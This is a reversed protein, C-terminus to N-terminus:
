FVEQRKVESSHGAVVFVTHYNWADQVRIEWEKSDFRGRLESSVLVVLRVDRDSQRHMIRHVGIMREEFERDDHVHSLDCTFRLEAPSIPDRYLPETEERNNLADLISDDLRDRLLHWEAETSLTVKVKSRGHQLVIKVRDKEYRHFIM